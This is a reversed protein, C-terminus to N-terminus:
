RLAIVAAAGFLAQIPIASGWLLYAAMRELRYLALGVAVNIGLIALATTPIQLVERRSAVRIIDGLPPFSIEMSEPLGPFRWFVYAALTLAAAVAPLILTWTWPDFWFGLSAFSSRWPAQRPAWTGQGQRDQITQAFGAPDGITLGYSRGPTVVYLLQDPHRHTSYFLTEGAREVVARGVHIGPANIGRVAPEDVNRGPILREIATLPVLQRMGGWQIALANRDVIYCLSAVAYTWHAFVLALLALLGAVSWCLFAALSAPLTLARFVLLGVFLLAWSTLVLGFLIGSARPPRYIM